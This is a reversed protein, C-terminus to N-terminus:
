GVAFRDYVLFSIAPPAWGPARLRPRGATHALRARGVWRARRRNNRKVLCLSAYDPAGLGCVLTELLRDSKGRM